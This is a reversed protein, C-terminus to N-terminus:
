IKINNSNVENDKKNRRRKNFKVKNVIHREILRCRERRAIEEKIVAEADEDSYFIYSGDIYLLQTM